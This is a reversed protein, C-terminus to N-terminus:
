GMTERFITLLKYLGGSVSCVLVSRLEPTIRSSRRDASDGNPLSDARLSASREPSYGLCHKKFDHFISYNEWMKPDDMERDGRVWGIKRAQRGPAIM